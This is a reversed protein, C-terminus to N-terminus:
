RSLADNIQAWDTSKIISDAVDDPAVLNVCMNEIYPTGPSHVFPFPIYTNKNWPFDKWNGVCIVSTPADGESSAALRYALASGPVNLRTIASDIRQRLYPVNETVKVEIGEELLIQAQKKIADTGANIGKAAQAMENQAQQAYSDKLASLKKGRESEPKVQLKVDFIRSCTMLPRKPLPKNAIFLNQLATKESAIRWDGALLPAELNQKLAAAVKEAAQKEAPTADRCESESALAWVSSGLLVLIMTAPPVHKRLRTRM